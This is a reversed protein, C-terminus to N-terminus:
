LLARLPMRVPESWDNESEEGQEECADRYTERDHEVVRLTVVPKTFRMFAIDVQPPKPRRSTLSFRSDNM